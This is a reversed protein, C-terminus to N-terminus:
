LEIQSKIFQDMYKKYGKKTLHIMVNGVKVKNANLHNYPIYYKICQYPKMGKKSKHLFIELYGNDWDLDHIFFADFHVFIKDGLRLNKFTKM